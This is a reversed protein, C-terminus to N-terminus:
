LDINLVLLFPAFDKCTHKEVEMTIDETSVADMEEYGLQYAVEALFFSNFTLVLFIHNISM